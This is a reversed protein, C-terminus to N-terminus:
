CKKFRGEPGALALTDGENLLIFLITRLLSDDFEGTSTQDTQEGPPLPPRMDHGGEGNM